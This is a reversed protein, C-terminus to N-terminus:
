AHLAISIPEKDRLFVAVSEASLVIYSSIDNEKNDRNTVTQDFHKM